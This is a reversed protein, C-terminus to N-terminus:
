SPIVSCDEVIVEAAARGIRIPTTRAATKPTSRRWAPPTSARSWRASRCAPPALLGAGRHAEIVGGFPTDRDGVNLRYDPSLSRDMVEDKTSGDDRHYGRRRAEDSNRLSRGGGAGSWQPSNCAALTVALAAAGISTMTTGNM